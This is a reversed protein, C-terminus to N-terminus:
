SKISKLYAFEEDRHEACLLGEDFRYKNNYTKFGRDHVGSVYKPTWKKTDKREEENHFCVCCLKFHRLVVHLKDDDSVIGNRLRPPVAAISEVKAKTEAVDVQLAKSVEELRHNEEEMLKVTKAYFCLSADRLYDIDYEHAREPRFDEPAQNTKGQVGEQIRGLQKQPLSRESKFSESVPIKTTSSNPKTVKMSGEPLYKNGWDYLTSKAVKDKLKLCLYDWAELGTFGEEIATKCYEAVAERTKGHYELIREIITELRKNNQIQKVDPKAKKSEPLILVKAALAATEAIHDRKTAKGMDELVKYHWM